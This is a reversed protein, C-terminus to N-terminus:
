KSELRSQSLAPSPAETKVKETYTIVAAGAVILSVGFWRLPSVYEGLLFHASLATLVFGLASVPWVFSIDAQSMLYLLCGFYAAEWAIGQLINKNLAGRGLLRAIEGVNLQAPEGIEKLGKGLCVVGIAEMILGFFLVILIKAM